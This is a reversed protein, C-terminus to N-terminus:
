AYKAFFCTYSLMAETEKILIAQSQGGRLRARTILEMMWHGNTVVVVKEAEWGYFDFGDHCEWAAALDKVKGEVARRVPYSFDDYLLTVSDGMEAVCFRLAEELKKESRKVNLFFPKAGEIDSGISKKPFHLNLHKAVQLTFNTIAITSRYPTELTVQVFSPPLSLQWSPRHAPRKRLYPNYRSAIPNVVLVMSISEPVSQDNLENVATLDTIEDVLMVIKRGEFRKAVAQALPVLGFESESSIGFEQHIDRWGKCIKNPSGGSNADLYKMIPDESKQGATVVLLPEKNEGDECFKAASDMLSQAVQLAVFTKGTGAPGELVLNRQIPSATTFNAIIQQQQPSAVVFEKQMLKGDVTELNYRHREAILKEKDGVERYGVHLFSQHSLLRATLTLLKKKGSTTAPDLKDPVQTKKQLLSLDALDEQSVIGTEFCSSCFITQLKLATTDPFSAVTHFRIQSSPLDALISRLFKVDKTLQEEAKRVAQINPCPDKETWPYTNMRKVEFIVVNLIDGSAYAMVLDIEGGGVPMDLKLGLDNLANCLKMEVSRIILAPRTDKRVMLNRLAKKLKIEAEKDLWQQVATCKPLGKIFAQAAREPNDKSEGAAKAKEIEENYQGQIEENLCSVTQAVPFSEILNGANKGKREVFKVNGRSDPKPLNIMRFEEVPVSLVGGEEIMKWERMGRYNDELEKLSTEVTKPGRKILVKLNEDPTQQPSDLMREIMTERAGRESHGLCVKSDSM